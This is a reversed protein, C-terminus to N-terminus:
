KFQIGMEHALDCAYEWAVAQPEHFDGANFRELFESSSMGFEREYRELDARVVDPTMLTFRVTTGTKVEPLSAVLEKQSTQLAEAHAALEEFSKAHSRDFIDQPLKLYHWEIGTLRSVDAAWRHGRAEKIPVEIGEAGKTELVYHV